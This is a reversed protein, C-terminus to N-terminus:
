AAADQQPDSRRSEGSAIGGERGQEQAITQAGNAEPASKPLNRNVLPEITDLYVRLNSQMEEEVEARTLEPRAALLFDAPSSLGYPLGAVMAAIREQTDKPSALDPFTVRLADRCEDGSPLKGKLRHQSGRVMDCVLPWLAMEHARLHPVQRDRLVGLRSGEVAIALSGWDANNAMMQVSGPPIGEASIAMTIIASIEDLYDKAPVIRDGLELRADPPLIVPLAPHGLSQGDALKEIDAFIATIKNGSVQRVYLGAAAKYGVLLTADVLGNHDSCSWYDGSNDISTYAVAPCVGVAHPASRELVGDATWYNWSEATLEIWTGRDYWLAQEIYDGDRVVDFSNANALDFALRNRSDLHPACLVPGQLWSRANIGNQLRDIGSEAVIAAFAKSAGDGLGRLERTCGRQFAVAISDTCARLLNPSRTAFRKIYEAVPGRGMSEDIFALLIGRYDESYIRLKRSAANRRAETDAWQPWREALEGKLTLNM